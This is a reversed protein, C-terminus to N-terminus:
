AGLKKVIKLNSVDVGPLPWRMVFGWVEGRLQKVQAHGDPTTAARDKLMDTGLRTDGPVQASADGSVANKTVKHIM